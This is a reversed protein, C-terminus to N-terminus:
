IPLRRLKKQYAVRLEEATKSLNEIMPPVSSLKRAEYTFMSGALARTFENPDWKVTPDKKRAQERWIIYSNVVVM